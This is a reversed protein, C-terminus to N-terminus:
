PSRTRWKETAAVAAVAAVRIGVAGLARQAERATAGTTIIDDCVLVTVAQGALRRQARQHVRLSRALNAARQGADLGAQDSVVRHQRLLMPAFVQRGHSRLERAAARVMRAVPDHGRRRVTAPSSPVAVLLLPSQPCDATAQTVATALLAGLPGALGFVRHEKHAILLPKLPDAYRGAVYVPVLGEPEPDPRVQFAGSPLGARCVECLVRGPDACAACRSGLALDLWADWVVALRGRPWWRGTRLSM